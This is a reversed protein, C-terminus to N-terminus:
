VLLQGLINDWLKIHFSCVFLISNKIMAYHTFVPVVKADTIPTYPYQVRIVLLSSNTIHLVEAKAACCDYSQTNLTSNQTYISTIRPVCLANFSYIIYYHGTSLNTIDTILRSAQSHKSRKSYRHCNGNTGIHQFFSHWNLHMEDLTKFLLNKLDSTHHLCMVCLANERFHYL